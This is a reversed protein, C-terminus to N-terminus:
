RLKEPSEIWGLEQLALLVDEPIDEGSGRELLRVWYVGTQGPYSLLVGDHLIRIKDGTQLDLFAGGKRSCDSMRIPSHDDLVILYSGNDAILVRGELMGYSLAGRVGVTLLAAVAILSVTLIVTRKKM